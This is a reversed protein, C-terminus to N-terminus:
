AGLVRAAAVLAEPPCDIAVSCAILDPEHAALHTLLASQVAPDLLGVRLGDPTLGTLALLREAREPAELMWVLASLALAGAETQTGNSKDNTDDM